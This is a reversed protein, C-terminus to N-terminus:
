RKGSAVGNTRAFPLLNPAATAEPAPSAVPIVQGALRAAVKQAWGQRHYVKAWRPFATWRELESRGNDTYYGQGTKVLWGSPAAHAEGHAIRRQKVVPKEEARNTCSTDDGSGQARCGAQGLTWYSIDM